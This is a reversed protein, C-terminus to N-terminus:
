FELEQTTEKKTYFNLENELSQNSVYENFLTTIKNEHDDMRVMFSENISQQMEKNELIMSKLESFDLEFQKINVTNEKL